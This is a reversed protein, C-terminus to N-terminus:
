KSSYASSFCCICPSAKESSGKDGERQFIFGGFPVSNDYIEERPTEEVLSPQRNDCFFLRSAWVMGLCFEDRIIGGDTRRLAREDKRFLM